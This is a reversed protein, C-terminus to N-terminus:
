VPSSDEHPSSFRPKSSIFDETIESPALKEANQARASPGKLKSVNSQIGGSVIVVLGLKQGRDAQLHLVIDHMDYPVRSQM